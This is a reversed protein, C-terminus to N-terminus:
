ELLSFFTESTIRRGDLRVAEVQWLLRTGPALHGLASSPVVCEARQSADSTYIPEFSETTVRVVYVTGDAVPSWALRFTDRPMARDPGVLARIPEVRGERMVPPAQEVGPPFLVWVGLAIVIAAAAALLQRLWPRGRPISQEGAAGLGHAVRWTEACVPCRTTHEVVTRTEFVTLTGAQAEWIRETDPCGEARLDADAAEALAKRIDDVTPGDTMAVM